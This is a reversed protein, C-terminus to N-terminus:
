SELELPSVESKCNSLVLCHPGLETAAFIHDEEICLLLFHQLSCLAHGRGCSRLTFYFIGQELFFIHVFCSKYQVCFVVSTEWLAEGGQMRKCSKSCLPIVGTSQEDEKTIEECYVM